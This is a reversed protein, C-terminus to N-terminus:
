WISRMLSTSATHRSINEKRLGRKSTNKRRHRIRANLARRLLKRQALFSSHGVVCLPGLTAQRLGQSSKVRVNWVLCFFLASLGHPLSNVWSEFGTLSFFSLKIDELWLLSRWVSLYYGKRYFSIASYAFCFPKTSIRGLRKIHIHVAPGM